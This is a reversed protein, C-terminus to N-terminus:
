AAGGARDVLPFIRIPTLASRSRQMSDSRGLYLLAGTASAVIRSLAATTWISFGPVDLVNWSQPFVTNAGYMEAWSSFHLRMSRTQSTYRGAPKFAEVLCFLPFLMLFLTAEEVTICYLQFSKRRTSSFLVSNNAKRDRSATWRGIASPLSSHAVSPLPTTQKGASDYRTLRAGHEWASTSVRRNRCTASATCFPHLFTVM